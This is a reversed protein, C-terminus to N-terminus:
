QGEKKPDILDAAHEMGRTWTVADWNTDGTVSRARIKEALEHAVEMRFEEISLTRGGTEDWQKVYGTLYVGQGPRWADAM